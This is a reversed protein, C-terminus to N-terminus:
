EAERKLTLEQHKSAVKTNDLKREQKVWNAYFNLLTQLIYPVSYITLFQM